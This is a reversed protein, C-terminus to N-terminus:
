TSRSLCERCSNFVIFHKNSCFFYQCKVCFNLSKIGSSVTCLELSHKNNKHDYINTIHFNSTRFADTAWLPAYNWPILTPADFYTPNKSSNFFFMKERDFSVLLWKSHFAEYNNNMHLQDRIFLTYKTIKDFIFFSLRNRRRRCRRRRHRRGFFPARLELILCYCETQIECICVCMEIEDYKVCMSAKEWKTQFVIKKQLDITRCTSNRAAMYEVLSRWKIISHLFPTSINGSRFQQFISPKLHASEM